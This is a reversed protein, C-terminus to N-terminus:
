PVHHWTRRSTISWVTVPALGYLGAVRTQTHGTAVLRRIERVDDETITTRHHSIGVPHRTRGKEAMDDMNDQHTGLSLHSPNVCSPNDCSHIVLMGDPIPGINLIHSVRHALSVKGEFRFSGYGLANRCATWTWCDGTKDVKNWFRDM